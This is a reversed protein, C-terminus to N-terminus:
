WGGGACSAGPFAGAGSGAGGVVPPEVRGPTTTMGLLGGNATRTTNMNAINQAIVQLRKWEVDLGSRSIEMAEM